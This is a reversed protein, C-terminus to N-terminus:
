TGSDPRPRRAGAAALAPLEDYQAQLAGRQAEVQVLQEAIVQLQADLDAATTQLEEASRGSLEAGPATDRGRVPASGVPGIPGIPGIPQVVPGPTISRISHAEHVASRAAVEKIRDKIMEKLTDLM